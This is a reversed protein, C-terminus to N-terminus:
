ADVASRGIGRRRASVAPDAGPPRRPRGPLDARAHLWLMTPQRRRTTAWGCCWTPAPSRRTPARSASGSSRTTPRRRAPGGHRDARVPHRRARGAGRDSRADHGAIPSVIAAERRALRTSCPRSAAIPRARSCSAFATACGSSRRRPSRRRWRTRSRGRAAAFRRRAASRACRGRRLFRAVGRDARRPGALRGAMGRDAAVLAGDAMALAARRQVETEATLLDGLGEAEALDIRGNALARRTFEGPEARRLGPQAALAAEVAAVVARGGHLHLEVLDEGTATAPGPFCWCWRATSIIAARRIACRGCARKARRPCIAPWRARRRWRRRGASGCSRSRPRRRAPRCPSSRTWGVARGADTRPKKGTANDFLGRWFAMGADGM